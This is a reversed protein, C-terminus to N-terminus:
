DDSPVTLPSRFYLGPSFFELTTLKVGAGELVPPFLRSTWCLIACPQSTISPHASTCYTFGMMLLACWRRAPGNRFLLSLSLPLSLVDPFSTNKSCLFAKLPAAGFINSCCCDSLFVVWNILPQLLFVHFWKSVHV